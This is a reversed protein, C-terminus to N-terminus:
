WRHLPKTDLEDAHKQYAEWSEYGLKQAFEEENRGVSRLAALDTEQFYRPQQDHAGKQRTQQRGNQESVDGTEPQNLQRKYEELWEEKLKDLNKGRVYHYTERRVNPDSQLHAPYSSLVKNIEKEYKKYDPLDSLLVKEGLVNIANSGEARLREVENQYEIRDRERQQRQLKMAKAYDGEEFAQAIDNDGVEPPLERPQWQPAAPAPEEAEEQQQNPAQFNQLNQMFGGLTQNIMEQMQEATVFQPQQQGQEQDEDPVQETEQPKNARRNWIAM